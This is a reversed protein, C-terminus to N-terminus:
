GVYDDFARKAEAYRNKAISVRDGNSMTFQYRNIQTVKGLNVIFSRHSRYFQRPPLSGYTEVLSGSCILTEDKSHVDLETRFVEIYLIDEVRISAKGGSANRLAISPKKQYKGIVHEMVERFKKKNSPKLLYGVPFVSYADLAHTAYSSFFLIDGDFGKSRLKRAQEVGDMGGLETELVILQYNQKEMQESLQRYSYCSDIITDLSLEESLKSLLQKLEETFPMEDCLLIKYM